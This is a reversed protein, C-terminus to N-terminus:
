YRSDCKNGDVRHTQLASERNLQSTFMVLDVSVGEQNFFGAEEAVILPISNVAPMMGVKLDYIDNKQEIVEAEGGSYM